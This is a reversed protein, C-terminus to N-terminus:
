ADTSPRAHSLSLEGNKGSHWLAAFIYNKGIGLFRNPIKVSSTICKNLTEM